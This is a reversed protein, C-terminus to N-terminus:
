ARTAWSRRSWLGACAATCRVPMWSMTRPWRRLPSSTADRAPRPFILGSTARPSGHGGGLSDWDLQAAVAAFMQDILHVRTSAADLAVHAFGDGVGALGDALERAVSEDGVVLVKVASGGQSVYGSLYEKAVFDLYESPAIPAGGSPLGGDRPAPVTM